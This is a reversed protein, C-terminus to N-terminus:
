CIFKLKRLVGNHKRMVPKQPKHIPKLYIGRLTNYAGVPIILGFADENYEPLESAMKRNETYLSM